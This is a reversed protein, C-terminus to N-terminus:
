AVSIGEDVPEESPEVPDLKDTENSTAFYEHAAVETVYDLAQDETMTGDAVAENVDARTIYDELKLQTEM